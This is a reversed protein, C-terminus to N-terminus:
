WGWYLRVVASNKTSASNFLPLFWLSRRRHKYVRCVSVPLRNSADASHRARLAHDARPLGELFGSWSLFCRILGKRAVTRLATSFGSIDFSCDWLFRRLGRMWSGVDPADVISCPGARVYPRVRERRPRGRAAEEAAAVERRAAFPTLDRTPRLNRAPVSLRGRSVALWGFRCFGGGGLCALWSVIRVRVLGLFFVAAVRWVGFGRFRARWTASVAQQCDSSFPFSVRDCRIRHLYACPSYQTHCDILRLHYFNWEERILSKVDRGKCSPELGHRSAVLLSSSRSRGGNGM